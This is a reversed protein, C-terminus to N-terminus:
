WGSSSNPFYSPSNTSSRARQGAWDETGRPSITPSETRMSVHDPEEGEADGETQCRDGEEEIATAIQSRIRDNMAVVFSPKKDIVKMQIDQSNINLEVNVQKGRHGNFSFKVKSESMSPSAPAPIDESESEEADNDDMFSLDNRATAIELTQREENLVLFQRITSGLPGTLQTSTSDGARSAFSRMPSRSHQPSDAISSVSRMSSRKNVSHSGSLYADQPSRESPTESCLTRCLEVCQDAIMEELQRQMEVDEASINRIWPHELLQKADQRREYNRDFCKTLFDVFDPSFVRADDQPMMLPIESSTTIHFMLPLHDKIKTHHWPLYGTALEFLSCGASWVDSKKVMRGKIFEPAMFVPTGLLHSTASNAESVRQSCGFDALKVVGTAHILLNAPKIDRHFIGEQHIFDLGSFIDKAFKKLIHEPLPGFKKLMDSTSGGSMFELVFRCTRFSHSYDFLVYRVVNPHKLKRILEFEDEISKLDAPNPDPGMVIEKVAVIQNHRTDLGSFVSAYGGRGILRGKLINSQLASEKSSGHRKLHEKLESCAQRIRTQTPVGSNNSESLSRSLFDSTWTDGFNGMTGRRSLAGKSQTAYLRFSQGRDWKFSSQPSTPSQSMSVTGPSRTPNLPNFAGTSGLMHFAGTNGLNPPPPPIGDDDDDSSM